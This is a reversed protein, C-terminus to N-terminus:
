AFSLGCGPCEVADAALADGCAPCTEEEGEVLPAAEEPVIQGVITSDVERAAALDEPRVYLGFLHASDGFIGARQDEPADEASAREVRLTVGREQLHVSLAHIWALPAVRVCALESAPPFDALDLDEEELTEPLVLAVDCDVCREASLRYEVLCEPCVKFASVGSM